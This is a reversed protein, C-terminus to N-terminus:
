SDTEPLRESREHPGYNWRVDSLIQKLRRFQTSLRPSEAIQVTLTDCVDSTIRELDCLDEEYIQFLKSM